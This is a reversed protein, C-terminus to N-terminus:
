KYNICNVERHNSGPRAPNNIVEVSRCKPSSMLRKTTDTFGELIKLTMWRDSRFKHGKRVPVNTELSSVKAEGLLSEVDLAHFVADSFELSIKLSIWRDSWFNHGKRVPVRTQLSSGEAEGPLSEVDVGLFVADTFEELIKLNM